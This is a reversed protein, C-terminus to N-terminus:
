AAAEELTQGLYERLAQRIEGSVTRDNARASEKLAEALKAEIRFAM